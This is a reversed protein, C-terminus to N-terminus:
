IKTIIPILGKTDRYYNCNDPVDIDIEKEFNM